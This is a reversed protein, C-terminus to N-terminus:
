STKNLDPVFVAIAAAVTSVVSIIATLAEPALKVGVIGLLVSLGAYTSPEKLRAIIYALISM